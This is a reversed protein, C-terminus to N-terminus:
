FLYFYVRITMTFIMNFYTFVFNLIAQYQYQLLFSKTCVSYWLIVRFCIKGSSTESPKMISERVSGLLLIERGLNIIIKM